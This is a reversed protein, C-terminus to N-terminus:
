DTDDKKGKNVQNFMLSFQATQFDREIQKNHQSNMLGCLLWVLLWVGGTLLTLVFHLLHSTKRLKPPSLALMVKKEEELKDYKEQSKNYEEKAEKMGKKFKEVEGKVSVEQFLWDKIKGM